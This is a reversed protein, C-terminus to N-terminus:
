RWLGLNAKEITDMGLHGVLTPESEREREKKWGLISVTMRWFSAPQKLRLCCDIYLVRYLNCKCIGIEMQNQGTEEECRHQIYM